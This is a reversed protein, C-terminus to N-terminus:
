SRMSARSRSTALPSENPLCFLEQVSRDERWKGLRSIPWHQEIDRSSFFREIDRDKEIDGRENTYIGGLAPHTKVSATASCSRSPSSSRGSASRTRPLAAQDAEAAAARPLLRRRRPVDAQQLRGPRGEPRPVRRRRRGRAIYRELNKVQSRHPAARERPLDHQVPPPRAQRARGRTGAVWYIGRFHKPSLFLTQLYFSDNVKQPEKAVDEDPGPIVLVSLKKRVEISRTARHQRRRARRQGPSAVVATVLKFRENLEKDLQEKTLTRDKPEDERQFTVQAM